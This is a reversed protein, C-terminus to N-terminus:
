SVAELLGNQILKMRKFITLFWTIYIGYIM